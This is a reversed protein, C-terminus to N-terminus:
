KRVVKTLARLEAKVSDVNKMVGRANSPDRELKM